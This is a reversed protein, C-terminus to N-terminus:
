VDSQVAAHLVDTSVLSQFLAVTTHRHSALAGSAHYESMHVNKMKSQMEEITQVKLNANLKTTIHLVNGKRTVDKVELGTLPAFLIEKEDVMCIWSANSFVQWKSKQISCVQTSPCSQSM